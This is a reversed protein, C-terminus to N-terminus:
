YSVGSSINFVMVVCMTGLCTHLSTAVKGNCECGIRILPRGAPWSGQSQSLLLHAEQRDQSPRSSVYIPVSLSISIGVIGSTDLQM